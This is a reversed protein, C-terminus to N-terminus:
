SGEKPFVQVLLRIKLQNKEKRVRTEDLNM